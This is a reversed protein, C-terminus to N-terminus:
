GKAPFYKTVLATLRAATEIDMVGDYKQPYFHLQFARVLLQYSIDTTALSTNYGYKSLLNLITDQTPLGNCAYEEAYCNKTEDDFWAGIGALYLDHWPFQPGPDTKRDWAIDSHGIVHIPKIDPYRSLVHTALNKVAKIQEPHFAPFYFISDKETATNVIEIGISTDNLNTRSGWSSVGAHWARDQEDVLNFIEQEKYGRAIFTSDSIDPVLYHASVGGQTLLKISREFNCATYHMVLFHIRSNFGKASRYTKYNIAKNPKDGHTAVVKPHHTVKCGVAILLYVICIISLYRIKM